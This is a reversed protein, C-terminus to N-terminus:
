LPSRSRPPFVERWGAPAGRIRVGRGHSLEDTDVYVTQDSSFSVNFAYDPFNRGVTCTVVVLRRGARAHFSSWGRPLPVHSGDISLVCDDGKPNTVIVNAYLGSWASATVVVGVVLALVMWSTGVRDAPRRGHPEAGTSARVEIALGREDVGVVLGRAWEARRRRYRRVAVVLAAWVSAFVAATVIPGHSPIMGQTPLVFTGLVALGAPLM